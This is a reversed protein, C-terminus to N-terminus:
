LNGKLLALLKDACIEATGKVYTTCDAEYCGYECAAISPMYGVQRNSYGMVLTYDCPSNEEIYVGTENFMEYCGYVFGVTGITVAHLEIEKTAGMSARSIIAGTEYASFISYQKGAEVANAASGTTTFVNRVISAATALHDKSHDVAGPYLEESTHILGTGRDTYDTTEIVYRAIEQGYVRYDGTFAAKEEALRSTPNVNGAAGQYYACHCDLAEEVAERYPAVFDASVSKTSSSCSRQVHTRWNTYLIDKAGERVFRLIHMTNDIPVTHDVLLSSDVSSNHNDSVYIGDATYYHKIYNLPIEVDATKMVAPARDEMAERAARVAGPYVINAYWRSVEMMSNADDVSAHTHTATFMINEVPVGTENSMRKKMNEIHKQNCRIVDFTVFLVSNDEEDTVAICSLTIYTQVDISMRKSTNGYGALPVSERPTINVRSFGARFTGKEPVPETPAETPAADPTETPAPASSVTSTGPQATCSSIILGFALVVATVSFSLSKKM